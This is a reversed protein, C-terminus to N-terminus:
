ISILYGETSLNGEINLKGIIKININFFKYLSYEISNGNSLDHEMDLLSQYFINIDQFRIKYFISCFSLLNNDWHTFINYDENFVNINFNESM